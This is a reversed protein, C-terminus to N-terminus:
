IVLYKTKTMADFQIDELLMNEWIKNKLFRLKM